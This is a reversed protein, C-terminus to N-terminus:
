MSSSAAFKDTIGVALSVQHVCIHHVCIYALCGAELLASHGLLNVEVIDYIVGIDAGFFGGWM